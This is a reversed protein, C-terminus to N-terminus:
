GDRSRLVKGDECVAVIVSDIVAATGFAGTDACGEAGGPGAGLHSLYRWSDGTTSRYMGGGSPGDGNELTHIAGNFVVTHGLQSFFGEVGRVPVWDLGDESFYIGTGLTSGVNHTFVFGSPTAYLLGRIGLGNGDASRQIIDDADGMTWTQGADPSAAMVYDDVIESGGAPNPRSRQFGQVVLQGDRQAFRQPTQMDPISALDPVANQWTVGGDDTWHFIRDNFGGMFQYFRAGDAWSANIATTASLSQTHYRANWTAGLDDSVYAGLNFGFGGTPRTFTERRPIILRRGVLAPPQASAGFDEDLITWNTGGDTSLYFKSQNSAPAGFALLTDPSIAYLADIGDRVEPFTNRQTWTVGADTSTYLVSERFSLVSSVVILGDTAAMATINPGLPRSPDIGTMNTWTRGGDASRYVHGGTINAGSGRAAALYTFGDGEAFSLPTFYGPGVPEWQQAMASSAILLLFVAFSSSLCLRM